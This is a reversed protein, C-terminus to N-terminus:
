SSRMLSSGTDASTRLPSCRRSSVLTKKRALGDVNIAIFMHESRPPVDM